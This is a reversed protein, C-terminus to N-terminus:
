IVKAVETEAAKVDTVVATEVASAGAEVKQVVAKASALEKVAYAQFRQEYTALITKLGSIRDNLQTVIVGSHYAKIWGVIGIVGIAIIIGTLM